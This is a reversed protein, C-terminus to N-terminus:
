GSHHLLHALIGLHSLHHLLKSLSVTSHRTHWSHRSTWSSSCSLRCGCTRWTLGLESLHKLDGTQNLKLFDDFVVRPNDYIEPRWCATRAHSEFGRELPSSAGVLVFMNHETRHLTVLVSFGGHSELYLRNRLKVEDQPLFFHCLKHPSIFLLESLRQALQLCCEASFRVLM